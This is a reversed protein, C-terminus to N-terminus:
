SIYLRSYQKEHQMCRIEQGIACLGVLDPDLEEQKEVLESILGQLNFLIKQSDNQSIPVLKACNTVIGNLTNYYFASLTDKLTLGNAYAYMAFAVPYHGHLIGTQIKKLYNKCKVDTKLDLTLKLFRIALRRSAERIEKPAKIATIFEDQKQFKSTHQKEYLMGWTQALFAADNYYVNDRIMNEAYITSTAVDHVLGQSVYSELGYSHTFGGIPFM